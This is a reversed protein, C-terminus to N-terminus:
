QTMAPNEDAVLPLREGPHRFRVAVTDAQRPATDLTLVFPKAEGNGITAAPPDFGQVGAPRRASDYLVATLPPVAMARGSVNHITGHVVVTEGADTKSREATVAEIAMGELSVPLGIAAYLGALDPVARVAAERGGFFAVLFLVSAVAGMMMPIRRPRPPEPWYDGEVKAAWAREAGDSYTVLPRREAEELNSKVQAETERVLDLRRVTRRPASPWTEGCERCVITPADALVEPEASESAGCAPCIIVVHNSDALSSATV